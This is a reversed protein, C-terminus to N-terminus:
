AAYCAMTILAVHVITARYDPYVILGRLTAVPAITARHDCCMPLTQLAHSFYTVRRHWDLEVPTTRNLSLVVYCDYSVVLNKRCLYQTTKSSRLWHKALAM